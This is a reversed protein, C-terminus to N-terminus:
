ITHPDLMAEATRLAESIEIALAHSLSVGGVNNAPATIRADLRIRATELTVRTAERREEASWELPWVILQREAWRRNRELQQAKNQAVNRRTRAADRAAASM